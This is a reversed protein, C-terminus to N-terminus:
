KVEFVSVRNDTSGAVFLFLKGEITATTLSSAGRINYDASKIEAIGSDVVYLNSDALPDVVRPTAVGTIKSPAEPVVDVVRASVTAANAIFLFLRGAIKATTIFSSPLPVTSGLTNFKGDHAIKVGASVGLSGAIFIVEGAEDTTTTALSQAGAVGNNSNPIHMIDDQSTMSVLEFISLNGSTKSAVFFFVRAGITITVVSSAGGLEDAPLNTNAIIEGPIPLVAGTKTTDSAFEVALTNIANDDFLTAALVFISGTPNFAVALSSPAGAVTEPPRTVISGDARAFRGGSLLTYGRVTNAVRDAVFLHYTQFSVQRGEIVDRAFFVVSTSPTSVTDTMTLQGTKSVAYINLTEGAVFLYTKGDIIGTTVGTHQTLMVDTTATNILQLNSVSVRLILEKIYGGFRVTVTITADESERATITLQRTRALVENDLKVDVTGDKSSTAFFTLIESKVPQDLELTLSIIQTYDLTIDNVPTGNHASSYGHTQARLYVPSVSVPIEVENSQLYNYNGLRLVTITADGIGTPRVSLDGTMFDSVISVIGAPAVRPFFFGGDVPTARAGATVDPADLFLEGSLNGYALPQLAKKVEIPIIFTETNYNNNGSRSVTINLAGANVPTIRLEGTARNINATAINTARPSVSYVNSGVPQNALDISLTKSAGDYTLDVLENKLYDTYAIPLNAKSVRVSINAIAQEYYPTQARTVRISAADTSANLTRVVVNNSADLKVSIKNGGTIINDSTSVTYTFVTNPEINIPAILDITTTNTPHYEITTDTTPYELAVVGRLVSLPFSITNSQNYREDSAKYIDVTTDGVSKTKVFLSGSSTVTADAIATSSYTVQYSGTGRGGLITTADQYENYIYLFSLPTVYSLTQQTKVRVGIALDTANYNDDTARAIRIITDGTAIATITLNGDIDIDTTVINADDSTATYATSSLGGSIAFTTADRPKDFFLLGTLKSALPQDAKIVRISIKIEASELYRSDAQKSITITADGVGVTSVSLIGSKQELDTTVVQQNNNEIVYKGDDGLRITPADTISSIATIASTADEGYVLSLISPSATLEQAVPNVRITVVLTNSQEYNRNERNFVRITATGSDVPTIILFGINNTNLQFTSVVGEPIISEIEYSVNGGIFSATTAEGFDLVFNNKDFAITQPAKAVTITIPLARSANFNATAARRVLITTAGQELFTVTLINTAADVTATAVSHDSNSVVTYAADGTANTSISTTETQPSTLDKYTATFITKALTLVQDDKGTVSVDTTLTNSDNYNRDGQKYFAIKTDGTTVGATLELNNGAFDASAVAPNSNSDITYDGTGKADLITATVIKTESKSSQRLEFNTEGGFISITQPAKAIGVRVKLLTSTLYNRDGRKLVTIDTTGGQGLAVTLEGLPIISATAVDPTSTLTDFSGTSEGGTITISRTDTGETYTTSVFSPNAELTQAAKIVEVAITTADSIRYGYDGARIITIDTTGVQEFLVTIADGIISATAVDPTSSKLYYDGASLNDLVTSSTTDVGKNYIETFSSPTASLTEAVPKNVSVRIDKSIPNYTTTGDTGGQSTVTIVATGASLPTITILGSNTDVDATVIETNSSKVSFDGASGGTVTITKSATEGYGDFTVDTTSGGGATTFDLAVQTADGNVTIFIVVKGEKYNKSEPNSVTITADGATLAEITLEGFKVDAAKSVTATVVGTNRNKVSYDNESGVLDSDGKVGGVSKAAVSITATTGAKLKWRNSTTTGLNVKLNQEQKNVSIQITESASDYSSDKARVITVEANGVSVPTVRVLGVSNISVRVIKENSSSVSYEGTGKSTVQLIKFDTEGFAFNLSESSASLTQQRGSPDIPDVPDVPDIPDIPDIPDVPDVPDSIDSSAPSSGSSSSSSCAVFFLSFVIVLIIIKSKNM